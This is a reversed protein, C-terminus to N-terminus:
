ATFVFPWAVTAGTTIEYTALAVANVTKNATLTYKGTVKAGDVRYEVGKKTPITIVNGEQTPATPTVEKLGDKDVDETVEVPAWFSVVPGVLTVTRTKIFSNDATAVISVDITTAEDDPGVYLTRNQTVHSVQSQFGKVSIRVADNIGGTPTTIASGGVTYLKGREVTNVVTGADDYLVIDDLGTVPTNEQVVITGEKTTFLVAPAFRSTSIISWHHLFFNDYLGAPNPQMTTEYRVDAMVFFDTTTLIAQFGDIGIFEAPVVLIRGALASKDINFAAALAEVDLAANAEPSLIVLLKSRDAHVPMGAANYKTNLFAFNEATERMRRILKKADAATSDASSVDPVNIKFFGDANDYEKFLATTLLFEDWNDSTSPVEMLKTIFDSLGYESTFARTLTPQDITIKYMQERNIKHFSSQVDPTERGFLVKELYDRDHDYTYGKALGIQVEEITDGYDLMGRKFEAFMNQYSANQVLILGIQNLLADVFENRLPRNRMLNQISDQFNAKTAEPIRKQFESSTKHRIGNLFDVNNLRKFPATPVAM